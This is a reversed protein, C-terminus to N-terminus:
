SDEYNVQSQGQWVLRTGVVRNARSIAFGPVEQIVRGSGGIIKYEGDLELRRNELKHLFQVVNTALKMDTINRQKHTEEYDAHYIWLTMEFTVLFRQTGHDVRTLPGSVLEVAPYEPILNEDSGAVYNLGLLERNTELLNLLHEYVEEPRSYYAM